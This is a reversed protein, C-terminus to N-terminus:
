SQKSLHVQTLLYGSTGTSLITGQKYLETLPPECNFPHAGTLRLLRPDRPVHGDPTNNDVSLIDAPEKSPPPLPVQAALSSQSEASDPQVKLQVSKFSRCTDLETQLQTVSGMTRWPGGFHQDQSRSSPNSLLAAGAYCYHGYACYATYRWRGVLSLFRIIATM